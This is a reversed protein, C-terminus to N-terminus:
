SGLHAFYIELSPLKTILEKAIRHIKTTLNTPAVSCHVKHPNLSSAMCMSDTFVVMILTTKLQLIAPVSCIYEDTHELGQWMGLLEHVPISFSCLKQSALALTSYKKSKNAMHVSLLYLTYAAAM